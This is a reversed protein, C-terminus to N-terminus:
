HYEPPLFWGAEYQGASDQSSKWVYLSVHIQTPSELSEGHLVYLWKSPDNTCHLALRQEPSHYKENGGSWPHLWVGSLM